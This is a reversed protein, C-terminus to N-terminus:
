TNILKGGVYKLVRKMSASLTKSNQYADLKKKMAEYYAKQKTSSFWKTKSKISKLLADAQKQEQPSLQDQTTQWNLFSLLDNYQNVLDPNQEPQLQPLDPSKIEPLAAPPTVYLDTPNVVYDNFEKSFDYLKSVNWVTLTFKYKKIIDLLEQNTTVNTMTCPEFMTCLFVKNQEVNYTRLATKIFDVIYGDAMLSQKLLEPCEQMLIKQNQKIFEYRQSETSLLTWGDSYHNLNFCQQPKAFYDMSYSGDSDDFTPDYYKGNVEAWSHLVWAVNISSKELPQLKWVIRKADVWMMRAFFVFTKTYWDCLVKVGRLVSSIRRPSYDSTPLNINQLANYDYDTKNVLYVYLSKLLDLQSNGEKNSQIQNIESLVKSQNSIFYDFDVHAFNNMPLIVTTWNYYCRTWNVSGYLQSGANLLTKADTHLQIMKLVESNVSSCQDIPFRNKSKSIGFYQQSSNKIIIDWKKLYGWKVLAWLTDTDTVQYYTIAWLFYYTNNNQSSYTQDNNMWPSNIQIVEYDEYLKDSLSQAYIFWGIFIFFIVIAAIKKILKYYPM